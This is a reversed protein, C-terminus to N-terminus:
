GARSGKINHWVKFQELRFMASKDGELLVASRSAEYMQKIVHWM